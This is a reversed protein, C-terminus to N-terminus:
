WRSHEVEDMLNTKWDNQYKDLKRLKITKTLVFNNNAHMTQSQATIAIRAGFQNGTELKVEPTEDRIETRKERPALRSCANSALSLYRAVARM